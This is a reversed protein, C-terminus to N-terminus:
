NMSISSSVSADAAPADPAIQDLARKTRLLVSNMDRRFRDRLFVHINLVYGVYGVATLVVCLILLLPNKLVWVAEDFGLLILAAVLWVPLQGQIGMMQAKMQEQSRKSEAFAAEAEKQLSAKIQEMYCEDDFHKVSGKIEEPEDLDFRNVHSLANAVAVSVELAREYAETIDDDPGWVRPLGNADNRFQDFFCQKVRTLFLSPSGILGHIQRLTEEDCNLKLSNMASREVDPPLALGEAAFRTSAEDKVTRYTKHSLQAVLAWVDDVHKAAADLIAACPPAFSSGYHLQLQQLSSKVAADRWRRAQLEISSSLQERKGQYEPELYDVNTACLSDFKDTATTVFGELDKGFGNWSTLSKLRAGFAELLQRMVKDAHLDFIGTGLAYLSAELEARKSSAKEPYRQANEDFVEFARSVIEVIDGGVAALKTDDDTSIAEKVVALGEEAAELAERKFEDCRVVAVLERQAPLDLERDRRITEWVGAAFVPFGDLSLQRDYSKKFMDEKQFNARLELCAADFENPMLVKHPLAYFQLDFFEDLQSESHVTGETIQKWIGQLDENMVNSLQPVPTAMDHDRFLFLLKTRLPASKKDHFLVLDQELVTRLLLMNSANLRGVDQTWLNIILVESIALAFLASKREFTAADEGRERSDTGELDIVATGTNRDFGIWIGQTVQYRGQDEDMTFFDTGFLRNMITSKGSSQPGMIAVVRSIGHADGSEDAGSAKKWLGAVEGNFVEDYGVLQFM